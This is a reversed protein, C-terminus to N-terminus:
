LTDLSDLFQRSEVSYILPENYTGERAHKLLYNCKSCRRNHPGESKFRRGCMLCTRKKRQLKTRNRTIPMQTLLRNVVGEEGANTVRLSTSLEADCIVWLFM